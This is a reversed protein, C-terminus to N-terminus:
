QEFWIQVEQSQAEFAVQPLRFQSGPSDQVLVQSSCCSDAGPQLRLEWRPLRTSPSGARRWGTKGSHHQGPSYSELPVCCLSSSPCDGCCCERWCLCLFSSFIDIKMKIYLYFRVLNLTGERMKSRLGVGTSETCRQPHTSGSEAGQKGALSAWSEVSM